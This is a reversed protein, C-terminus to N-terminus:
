LFEKLSEPGDYALATLGAAEAAARARDSRSVFVTDKAATGLVEVAVAFARPDCAPVGIDCSLVVTPSQGLWDFERRMIRSLGTPLDGLAGLRAGTEDLRRYLAVAQSDTEMRASWDAAVADAVDFLPLSCRTALTNWFHREDLDGTTLQPWLEEYEDWFGGAGVVEEISRASEESPARLLVSNLDFLLGTM